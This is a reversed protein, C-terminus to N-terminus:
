AVQTLRFEGAVNVIIQFKSCKTQKISHQLRNILDLLLPFGFYPSQLACLIRSTLSLVCDLFPHISTNQSPPTFILNWGIFVAIVFLAFTYLLDCREFRNSKSDIQRGIYAGISLLTCVIRNVSRSLSLNLLHMKCSKFRIFNFM